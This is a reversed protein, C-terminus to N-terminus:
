PRLEFIKRYICRWSAQSVRAERGMPTTLSVNIADKAAEFMDNLQQTTPNDVWLGLEVCRTKVLNM